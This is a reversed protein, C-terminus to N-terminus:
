MLRQVEEKLRPYDEVGRKPVFDLKEVGYQLLRDIVPKTEKNYLDIRNRIVTETDDARSVLQGGCEDCRGEKRPLLPKMVYGDSDISCLNYNKGCNACVRRGMLKEILIDERLEINILRFNQLEFHQALLEVQKVNRPIGDFIVGKPASKNYEQLILDMVTEDDVLEGREIRERIAKYKPDSQAEPSKLLNRIIDGPTLKAYGWDKQLLAGFTGKGVGPAGFLIM